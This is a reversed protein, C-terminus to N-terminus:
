CLIGQYSYLRKGWDQELLNIFSRALAMSNDSDGSSSGGGMEEFFKSMGPDVYQKQGVAKNNQKKKRKTKKHSIPKFGDDEGRAKYQVPLFSEDVLVKKRKIM